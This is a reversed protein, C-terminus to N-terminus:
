FQPWDEPILKLGNRWRERLAAQFRPDDGFDPHDTIIVQLKGNMSEVVDFILGYLRKVALRDADNKENAFGETNEIDPSFHAQSLQDFILFAPVPRKRIAFWSHLALHAVIHYGVHNEGSGMDWMPVCRDTTDAVVTLHRPDLRLPSDSYELEVRKAYDSLYRNVNSLCSDMKQHIEEKGLENEFHQKRRELELLQSKQEIKDPMDPLNEVFLSIRGIVLARMSETDRALQLLKNSKKVAILCHRNSEIQMRIAELENEVDQIAFKIKPTASDIAGRREVIYEQAERLDGISPTKSDIPLQQFCLLCSSELTGDEFVTAALLRSNHEHAEASFSKSHGEFEKVRELVSLLSREQQVLNKREVTLRQFESEDDCDLIVDPVPSSQIHRLMEIKQQWPSENSLDTLGVARAEALLSNTRGDGKGNILSSEVIFREIQRIEERIHKLDNKMRLYDDSVAGLFYPLTDKFAQAVDRDTTGHFLHRRQAIENQSQFCLAVAHRITAVLPIRTQDPPPEHKYDSIGVWSGLLLKLGELNTIASLHDVSPVEIETDVKYYVAESSRANNLPLKRAVFAQGQETQLLLGFWSVNRRVIGEPVNCEKSGFCYNVIDLIASKGTRSDGSIINAKGLELKLVRSKGDHSYAVIAIIQIM